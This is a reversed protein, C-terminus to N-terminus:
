AHGYVRLISRSIRDCRSRATRLESVFREQESRQWVDGKPFVQLLSRGDASIFRDRLFPPLDGAHMRERDDQLRIIAVTEHLDRFLSQQFATLRTVVSDSGQATAARLGEASDRLSRLRAELRPDARSAALETIGVGLYRRLTLLTESLRGPDVLKQDLEPLPIAAVERKIARILALKRDQDETLYKVMSVVSSVSPLAKIQAELELARPLSDAVVACYLLSQSGSEILKHEMGVAPLGRTQLHLLNYDFRVRPLQVVTFVTFLVGCILVIRPHGLYLQEIRARRSVRQCPVSEDASGRHAWVLMLPLLTMMPVLCVLLGTGSILGMERIGKFHTLTMAFFAGATTFCSTFIGLGTFIIAKRIAGRTGAGRRLEEEYRTVLHVGFDIAVGILIPVLTLSLLNLRGVTLTAFGLTYGIGVVLCVTAILPRRLEHYGYIFIFVSLVLSIVAAKETDRRAQQMEDQALVPEGTVGANVGPVERQTERLLTRLRRIAASQAAESTAETTLLFIRGGGFALYLGSGSDGQQGGFLTAVGPALLVAPQRISETAQDLMRQLAPLAGTFPAAAARELPVSALSRLQQVMLELLSNLSDAQSYTQIM